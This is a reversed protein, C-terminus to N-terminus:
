IAVVLRGYVHDICTNGSIVRTVNCYLKEINLLPFIIAVDNQMVDRTDKIRGIIQPFRKSPNKMKAMTMPKHTMNLKGVVFGGVRGLMGKRKEDKNVNQNEM